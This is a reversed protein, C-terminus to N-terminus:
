YTCGLRTFTFAIGVIILAFFLIIALFSIIIISTLYHVKAVM